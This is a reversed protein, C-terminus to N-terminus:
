GISRSKLRAWADRWAGEQRTRPVWDEAPYEPERARRPPPATPPRVPDRELDDRFLDPDLPVARPSEEIPTIGRFVWPIFALFLVLGVLAAAGLAIISRNQDM